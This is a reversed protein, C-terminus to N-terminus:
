KRFFYYSRGGSLLQQPTHYDFLSWMKVTNGKKRITSPDAYVTVSDGESVEVWEAM